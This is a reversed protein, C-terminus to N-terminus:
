ISKNEGRCEICKRLRKVMNTRIKSFMNPDVTDCCGTIRQRLHLLDRIKVAYAQAKLFGWFVFDLTLAVKLRKVKLKFRYMFILFIILIGM